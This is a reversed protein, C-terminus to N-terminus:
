QSRWIGSDPKEGTRVIYRTLPWRHEQRADEWIITITVKHLDDVDEPENDKDRGVEEQEVIAVEAEWRFRECPKPFDGAQEGPSPFGDKKVEWLVEEALFTALTIDSHARETALAVSMSQLIIVAAVSLIAAAMIVELLM